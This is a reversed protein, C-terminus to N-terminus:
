QTLKYDYIKLISPILVTEICRVFAEEEKDNLLFALGSVQLAAHTAEHMLTEYKQDITKNLVPHISIVRDDLGFWGYMKAGIADTEKVSFKVGGVTVSRPLKPAQM